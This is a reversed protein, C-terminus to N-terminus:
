LDKGNYPVVTLGALDIGDLCRVNITVGATGDPKVRRAFSEVGCHRCFLHHVIKHNFQYDLLETEGSLLTFQNAPAFALMLGRKTCISCNCSVVKSLDVTVRYRVAGCHCGGTHLEAGSM